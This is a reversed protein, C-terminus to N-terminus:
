NKVAPPKGTKAQTVRRTALMMSSPRRRSGYGLPFGLKRVKTPDQFAAALDKQYEKTFPHDPRSYEGFLQVQWGAKFYGYPVGTDDQLILNSNDLIFQRLGRCMKWHLLFSGSKVLTDPTGLSLLFKSFAPNREFEGALDRSFYYLTREVKESARHFHIEVAQHKKPDTGPDEPLLKGDDTLKRYAMDDITHGSRALLLLILPSLGDAVRGHFQQDMESTVFFSREVISSVAWRWGKMDRDLTEPKYSEPPRLNGVKELGAFVFVKANPFFHNAYLVDPGSLPYFVYNSNTKLPALERKQFEDVNRFQGTEQRKWIEDFEQSYKQWAPSDEAQRFPGDPRGRIGALFQATDNPLQSAPSKTVKAPAQEVATQQGCAQTLVLALLAAAVRGPKSRVMGPIGAGLTVKM